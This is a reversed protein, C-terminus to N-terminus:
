RGGGLGKDGEEKSLAARATRDCLIERKKGGERNKNGRGGGVGRRGGGRTWGGRRGGGEGIEGEERGENGRGRERDAGQILSCVLM